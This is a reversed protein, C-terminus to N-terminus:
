RDFVAAAHGPNLKLNVFSYCEMLEGAPDGGPMPADYAEFRVPLKTEKDMFVVAKYCYRYAHSRDCILEYRTVPRDAFTYEAVSVAVPNNMRREVQANKDLLEILAGLGLHDIPHRHAALYRSDDLNATQFGGVGLVGAPRIRFKSNGAFKGDVFCAELGVLDRPGIFKVYLSAPKNRAHLEATQEPLLKGNVREIKKLHCSYDRIKAFAARADALAADYRAASDASPTGFTVSIKSEPKAAPKTAPPTPQAPTPQVPAVAATSATTVVPIVPEVVTPQAALAPLTGPLAPTITASQTVGGAPVVPVTPAPPAVPHLPPLPPYNPGQAAATAATLGISLVGLRLYRSRM